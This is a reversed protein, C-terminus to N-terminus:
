RSAENLLLFFITNLFMLIFWISVYIIFLRDFSAYKKLANYNKNLSLGTLVTVIFSSLIYANIINM